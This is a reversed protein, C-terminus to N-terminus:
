VRRVRASGTVASRANGAPSRATRGGGGLEIEGREAQGSEEKGPMGYVIPVVDNASKCKPCPPRDEATKQVSPKEEKKADAKRIMKVIRQKESLNAGWEGCVLYLGEKKGRRLFWIAEEGEQLESEKLGVREGDNFLWEVSVGETDLKGRLVEQVRLTATGRVGAGCIFGREVVKSTKVTGVIM